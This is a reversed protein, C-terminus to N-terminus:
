IDKIDNDIIIYCLQGKELLYNDFDKSYNFLNVDYVYRDKQFEFVNM